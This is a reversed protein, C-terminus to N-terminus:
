DADAKRHTGRLRNGAQRFLARQIVGTQRRVRAGVKGCAPRCRCVWRFCILTQLSRHDRMTLSILLTEEARKLKVAEKELERVRQELEKYTAKNTM